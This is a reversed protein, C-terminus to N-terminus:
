HHNHMHYPPSTRAYNLVIVNIFHLEPHSADTKLIDCIASLRKHGDVCIYIQNCQKVYIPFSLNIRLISDYLQKTYPTTVYQICAFAKKEIKM